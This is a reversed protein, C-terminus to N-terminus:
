CDRPIFILTSPSLKHRQDDLNATGQPQPVPDGNGQQSDATAVALEWGGRCEQSTAGEETKLALLLRGTGPKM